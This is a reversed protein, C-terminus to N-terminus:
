EQHNSRRKLEQLLVCRRWQMWFHSAPAFEFGEDAMSVPAPPSLFEIKNM